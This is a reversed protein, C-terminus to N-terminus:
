QPSWPREADADDRQAAARENGLEEIIADLLPAM